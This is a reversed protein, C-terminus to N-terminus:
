KPLVEITLSCKSGKDGLILVEYVGPKAFVPFATEAEFNGQSDTKIFDVKTTGLGIKEEESLKLIIEIIEEPQFGSGKIVLKAEPKGKPPDALVTPQALLSSSLFFLTAVCLIVGRLILKLGM